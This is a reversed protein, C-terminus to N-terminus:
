VLRLVSSGERIELPIEEKEKNGEMGFVGQGALDEEALYVTRCLLLNYLLIVLM